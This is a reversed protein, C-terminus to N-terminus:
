WLTREGLRKSVENAVTILTFGVLSQFLGVATTYSYEMRGLGIRYVYTSLVDGVEYVLPNYLMLIQEVNSNMAAGLRLMIIFVITSRIGPLSIHWIKRLRSAGDMTAAEYLEPDVAQLAALYVITSWGTVKWANTIVLVPRFWREEALFLVSEGGFWMVVRNVIGTTPSLLNIFLASIVVWSLFYPMYTITQTVRKFRVNKVESILIALVIPLPWQFVFNYLNILLTNRLVSWFKPSAFLRAFHELGVWESGRIGDLIRYDKFAISAGYMPAYRFIIMAALGPIMLLYLDYDNRVQRLLRRHAM